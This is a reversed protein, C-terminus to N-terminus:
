GQGHVARGAGAGAARGRKGLAIVQQEGIGVATPALDARQATRLSVHEQTAELARRNSQLAPLCFVADGALPATKQQGISPPPFWKGPHASNGARAATSAHLRKATGDPMAIVPPPVRKRHTPYPYTALFAYCPQSHLVNFPSPSLQVGGQSVGLSNYGM